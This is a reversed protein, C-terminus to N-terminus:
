ASQAFDVRIVKQIVKHLWLVRYRTQDWDHDEAKTDADDPNKDDRPLTTTTAVFAPNNPTHYFGAGEGSVSAALMDRMLQLGNVRSGKAKDCPVWSVGNREMIKAITDTSKDSVNYIQSDAPGPSPRRSIWGEDLMQEEREIIGKAIEASGLRLGENTGYNPMGTSLDLQAGYWEGIRILSGRNPCWVAGDPMEVEEGNAVTYWGVSFPHSSGWDFARDVPWSAPVVFRPVRHIKSEYLDDIIGGATIDWSGTLWAKRRNPDNQQLLQMEYTVDLFPNEKYSSFIAVQKRELELPESAGLPRVKFVKKVVEGYPAPDIYKQKVWNHGPGYPNTTSFVEIPIPYPCTDESPVFSSRNYSLMANFCEPTPYKSLENWAIWPYEHGHYDWYDEPDSMRRLLLQEGTPWVWRYDAKSKMFHAGDDFQKFLRASKEVIDDLSKYEMDFIIGRWYSGYGIGVHRRFRMLQVETKGGGRTGTLLTDDCRTDLAIEQSSPFGNRGPFPTWVHQIDVENPRHINVSSM